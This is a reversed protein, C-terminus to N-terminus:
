AATADKPSRSASGSFAGFYFGLWVVGLVAWVLGFIVRGTLDENLILGSFTIASISFSVVSAVLFGPRRRRRESM